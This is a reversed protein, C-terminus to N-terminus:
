EFLLGCAGSDDWLDQEGAGGQRSPLGAEAAATALAAEVSQRRERLQCLRLRYKAVRQTDEDIDTTTPTSLSPPSPTLVAPSGPPVAAVYVPMQCATLRGGLAVCAGQLAAAAAAAAQPALLTDVLDPRSHSYAVRLAERWERGGVLLLVASDVDQLHELTLAAADAARGQAALEEALGEALARRRPAEWGQKAALAFAM